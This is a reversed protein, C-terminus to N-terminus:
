EDLLKVCSTENLYTYCLKNAKIDISTVLITSQKRRNNQVKVISFCVVLILAFLVITMKM